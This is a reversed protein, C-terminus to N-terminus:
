KYKNNKNKDNVKNMEIMKLIKRNNSYIGPSLYFNKRKNKDANEIQNSEVIVNNNYNDVIDRKEGEENDNKIKNANSSKNNINNNNNEAKIDDNLQYSYYLQKNSKILNRLQYQNTSDKKNTKEDNVINNNDKEKDSKNQANNVTQKNYIIKKSEISEFSNAKIVKNKYKKSTSSQYMSLSGIKIKKGEKINSASYNNINKKQNGEYYDYSISNIYKYNPTIDKSKNLNYSKKSTSTVISIIKINNSNNAINNISSDNKKKDVKNKNKCLNVAHYFNNNKNEIFNLNSNNSKAKEENNIKKINENNIINSKLIIKDNINKKNKEENIINSKLIIDDNNNKNDDIINSYPKKNDFLINKNNEIIDYRNNILSKSYNINNNNKNSNGFFNKYKILINNIHKIYLNINKLKEQKEKITAELLKNQIFLNEKNFNKEKINQNMEKNYKNMDIIRFTNNIFVIIIDFPTSLKNKNNKNSKTNKNNELYIIKNRYIEYKEKDFEEISKFYSYSDRLLDQLNEQKILLFNLQEKLNGEYKLFLLIVEQYNNPINYFNNTFTKFSEEDLSDIILKQESKIKSIEELNSTLNNEIDIIDKSIKNIQIEKQAYKSNLENLETQLLRVDESKERFESPLSEIEKLINNSLINSFIQNEIEM